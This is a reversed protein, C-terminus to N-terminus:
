ESTSKNMAVRARGVKEIIKDAEAAWVYPMARDNHSDIYEHIATELEPVSTFM